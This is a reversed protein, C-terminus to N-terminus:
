YEKAPDINGVFVPKVRFTFSFEKEDIRLEKALQPGCSNSGVPSNRYDITVFSRLDEVLEYDHATATLQEDTYHSANFSFSDAAFFLGIGSVHSIDMWRTGFHAGNEQPRVYHEFNKGVTTEFISLRSALKKDEYSEYPGYGLYRIDEYCPTTTFRYGFRPLYTVGESVKAETSIEIGASERITYRVSLRLAPELAVAGLSLATDVIVAGNEDYYAECSYCHIDMRDFGQAEWTRRINRDNDTPARWVTPIVAADLMPRGSYVIQEILGSTKGIVVGIDGGRVYYADEDEELEAKGHLSSMRLEDCLIIQESGVEYGIEAWPTPTSQRVSVNLTMLESLELVPLPYVRSAGPKLGLAGPTSSWIVRGNKEITLAVSLDTMKTFQRLSTIKLGKSTLTCKFPKIAQKLELLGVHPRRDPYVLGDVCFNSDHTRYGFDGGYTYKPHTVPYDGIAVSHDIFEWVCGGFFDDHTYILDWYKKLDGPGNGMAHSYECMFFPKDTYKRCLYYDLMEDDPYMRSEIDIYSRYEEPKKFGRRLGNRAWADTLKGRLYLDAWSATRSEDEAHVLRSGDRDKFYEAMARHNDGSGSENGVSWIIISPHNKDRELMRRARDVYSERWEPLVTLPSEATNGMGHCELDAEDVVYLGYRDCLELFRPDNPYHSTRVMNVNHAKMIMIDREMHRMPTAHGLQPHSDHRNVGKAKVKKGNILVVRGQVEIRRVGVPVSIFEEGACLVLQYLYPDEDSWLHPNELTELTLTGEGNLTMETLSLENGGNDLLRASVTLEGNTKIECSVKAETFDANPEARVFIDEIHVRDRALLYVERFIGSSRFMDQDELYSGDCWKYVLVAIENDGEELYKTINFESTMHSVQSYGVFKENIFLYFCSDVGEFNVYVEKEEWGEPITFYRRYLACPNENPVFPPDVPFPYRVNTYQPKDLYEKDLDNQWNMPVTMSDCTEIDQLVLGELESESAFYEFGWLGCLSKFYRSYDRTGGAAAPGNEYPVFYARTEECGLHLTSLDRHYDKIGFPM